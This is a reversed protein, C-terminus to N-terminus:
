GTGSTKAYIKPNRAQIELGPVRQGWCKGLELSKCEGLVRAVERLLVDHSPSSWLPTTAAVSARFSPPCSPPEVIKVLRFMVFSKRSLGLFKSILM